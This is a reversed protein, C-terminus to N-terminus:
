MTAPTPATSVKKSITTVALQGGFEGARVPRQEVGRDVDPDDGAIPSVCGAVLADYAVRDDVELLDETDEIGGAHEVTPDEVRRDLRGVLEVIEVLQGRRRQAPLAPTTAREVDARTMETVQPCSSGKVTAEGFSAFQVFAIALPNM